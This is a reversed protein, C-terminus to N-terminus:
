SMEGTDQKFDLYGKSFLTSESQRRKTLGRLVVGGARNWQLFDSAASNFRGANVDRLLTSSTGSRLHILGDKVGTQGPGVNYVFSVLADFQHQNIDSIVYYNIIREFNELDKQLLEEAYSHSISLGSHVEPGTHGYGISWIGVSDQYATLVCGEYFMILDLGQQSTTFNSM